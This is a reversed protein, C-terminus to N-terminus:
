IIQGNEDAIHKAEVLVHGIALILGGCAGIMYDDINLGIAVIRQGTPNDLTLLIGLSTATVPRLLAIGIMCVGIRRLRVPATDTFVLGLRYADFLRYAQGLLYLLVSMPIM